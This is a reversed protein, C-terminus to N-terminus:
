TIKIVAALESVGMKSVPLILGLVPWRLEFSATGTQPNPAGSKDVLDEAETKSGLGHKISHTGDHSGDTPTWSTLRKM